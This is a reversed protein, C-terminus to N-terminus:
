KQILHAFCTNKEQRMLIDNKASVSPRPWFDNSHSMFVSVKGRFVFLKKEVVM